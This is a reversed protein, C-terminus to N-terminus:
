SALHHQCLILARTGLGLEIAVPPPAHRESGPRVRCPPMHQRAAESGCASKITDMMPLEGTSSTCNGGTRPGATLRAAVGPKGGSEGRSPGRGVAGNGAHYTRLMVSACLHSSSVAPPQSRFGIHFFFGLNRSLVVIGACNRTLTVRTPPRFHFFPMPMSPM